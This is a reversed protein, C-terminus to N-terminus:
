KGRLKRELKDLPSFIPCALETHGRFLVSSIAMLECGPVACVGAVILSGDLFTLAALQGKGGGLIPAKSAGAVYLAALVALAILTALCQSLLVLLRSSIILILSYVGILGFVLLVSEIVIRRPVRLYVPMVCAILVLGILIRLVRGVLPAQRSREPPM